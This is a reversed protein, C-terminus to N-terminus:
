KSGTIDYNGGETPAFPVIEGLRRWVRDQSKRLDWSFCAPLIRPPPTRRSNAPDPNWPVQM